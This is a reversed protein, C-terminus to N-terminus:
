LRTCVVMRTLSMRSSDIHSSDLVYGYSRHQATRTARWAAVGWSGRRHGRTCVSNRGARNRNGDRWRQPWRRRKRASLGAVQIPDDHCKLKREEATFPKGGATIIFLSLWTDSSLPKRRWELGRGRSIWGTFPNLHRMIYAHGCQVQYHARVASVSTM